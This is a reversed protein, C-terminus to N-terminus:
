MLIIQVHFSYHLGFIYQDYSFILFAGAYFIDAPDYTPSSLSPTFVEDRSQCGEESGRGPDLIENPHVGTDSPHLGPAM